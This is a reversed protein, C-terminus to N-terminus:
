SAAPEETASSGDGPSAVEPAAPPIDEDELTGDILMELQVRLAPLDEPALLPAPVLFPQRDTNQGPRRLRLYEEGGQSVLDLMKFFRKRVLLLAILYLLAQQGPPPQELWAEFLRLLRDFDVTQKKEDPSQWRTEWYITGEQPGPFCRECRDNRMLPADPHELTPYHIVSFVRQGDEFEKECDKCRRQLREIKWDTM